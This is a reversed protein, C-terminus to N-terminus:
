QGSFAPVRSCVWCVQGSFAEPRPPDRRALGGNGRRVGRGKVLSQREPRLDRRRCQGKVSKRNRRESYVCGNPHESGLLVVFLSLLTAGHLSLARVLGDARYHLRLAAIALALDAHGERAFAAAGGGLAGRV